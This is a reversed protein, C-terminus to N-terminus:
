IVSQQTILTGGYHQIIVDVKEVFERRQESVDFYESYVHLLLRGPANVDTITLAIRWGGSNTGYAVYLVERGKLENLGPAAGFRELQFSAAVNDLALLLQPYNDSSMMLESQHSPARGKAAERPMDCAGLFSALVLFVLTVHRM